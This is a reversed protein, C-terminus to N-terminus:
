GGVVVPALYFLSFNFVLDKSFCEPHCFLLLFGEAGSLGVLSGHM